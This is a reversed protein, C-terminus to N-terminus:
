GKGRHEFRIEIEPLPEWRRHSAGNGNKYARGSPVRRCSSLRSNIPSLRQRVRRYHTEESPLLSTGTGLLGVKNLSARFWESILM